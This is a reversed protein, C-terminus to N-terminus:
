WAKLDVDKDLAHIFDGIDEIDCIDSFDIYVNDCGMCDGAPSHSCLESLEKYKNEKILSIAQELRSLVVQKLAEKYRSSVITKANDEGVGAEGLTDILAERFDKDFIKEM